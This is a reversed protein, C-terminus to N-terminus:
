RLSRPCEVVFAQLNAFRPTSDPFGPCNHLETLTYFQNRALAKPSTAAAYWVSAYIALGNHHHLDAGKPLAFLFAYLEEPPASAKIQDFRASFDAASSVVTFVLLVTFQSM